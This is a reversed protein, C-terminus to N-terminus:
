WLSIFNIALKVKSLSFLGADYNIEVMHLFFDNVRNAKEWGNFNPLM